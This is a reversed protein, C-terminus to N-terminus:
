EMKQSLFYILKLMGSKLKELETLADEVSNMKYEHKIFTEMSEGEAEIDGIAV